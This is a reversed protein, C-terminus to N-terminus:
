CQRVEIRTFLSVMGDLSSEHGACIQRAADYGCQACHCSFSLRVEPAHGTCSLLVVSTHVDKRYNQAMNHRGATALRSIVPRLERLLRSANESSLAWRPDALLAELEGAKDKQSIWSLLWEEMVPQCKNKAVRNIVKGAAELATAISKGLSERGEHQCVAVAYRKTNTVLEFAGKRVEAAIKLSRLGGVVQVCVVDTSLSYSPSTTSRPM